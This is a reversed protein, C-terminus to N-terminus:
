CSDYGVERTGQLIRQVYVTATASLTRSILPGKPKGNFSAQNQKTQNLNPQAKGVAAQLETKDNICPSVCPM